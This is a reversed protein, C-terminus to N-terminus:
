NDPFLAPTDDVTRRECSAMQKLESLLYQCVNNAAMKFYFEPVPLVSHGNRKGGSAEWNRSFTVQAYSQTVVLLIISLIIPFMKNNIVTM